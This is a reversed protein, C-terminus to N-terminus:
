AGDEPPLIPIDAPYLSFLLGYPERGAAAPQQEREGFERLRAVLAHADAPTLWLHHLATLEAQGPGRPLMEALAAKVIFEVGVAADEHHRLSRSVPAYYQETGGRVQRTEVLCVLGAERLVKVHYGVTGKASGLAAALQGLTAPRQHLVNLLRHRLPHGLAKFQDPSRLVLPAGGESEPAQERVPSQDEM